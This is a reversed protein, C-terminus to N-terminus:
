EARTAVEWVHGDPDQFYGAYGGWFVEGAPRVITAGARAAQAMVRDVEARSDVNHGITFAPPGPRSPGLGTDAAMSARSWVALKLGAQLQFFAVAGHEFERGVIGPTALGLGDRYFAVARELDDVAITLLSIHPDV